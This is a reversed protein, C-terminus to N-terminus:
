TLLHLSQDECEDLDNIAEQFFITTQTLIEILTTNVYIPVKWKNGDYSVINNYATFMIM